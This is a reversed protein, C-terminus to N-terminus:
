SRPNPGSLSAMDAELTSLVMAALESRAHHKSHAVAGSRLEGVRRAIASAEDVVADAPVVRDLYGVAAAEEPGFVEGLLAANFGAATLRYRALEIAFIPLGMGIAVENLGLKYDGAAGIRVDAALLLLSGMALAHGTCACVVPTPHTFLRMLAEAGETVLERMQDEGSTMVSLDFGASFRGPRGTLLVASARSDRAKSLGSDIGALVDLTIANAKGDDLGIVAVSGDQGFSVTVISSGLTREM